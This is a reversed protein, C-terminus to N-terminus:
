KSAGEKGAVPRRYILSCLSYPISDIEFTLEAYMATHQESQLSGTWTSDQTSTMKESQWEEDRFDLDTSDASWLTASTPQTDSMITLTQQDGGNEIQWTLQPLTKGYAVLRAFAGITRIAKERGGDLGHGANPIQLAFKPGELDSWYKTMADVVWYPDNTGNVLLKPLTLQRRYSYPDMMMRLRKERDTEDDLVILGKSTYDKIQESFAGWSDLQHQMQVRFNLTDIVMPATAIIRKDAVPTLWSTWGRKSAGTIVFSNIPKDYEQEALEQVADMAKVASKVMPFLLPWSEDGDKLYRLWTDTILDDEKRGDFLPQNPVQHIVVVRMGSAQALATGMGIAGADVSKPPQSGGTVFLLAHQPHTLEVPEFIEVAHEWVIDHWKQSTLRLETIKGQGAPLERVKKWAYDLEPKAIYQQLATPAAEEAQVTLGTLILAVTSLVPLLTRM